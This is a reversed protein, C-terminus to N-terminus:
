PNRYIRITGTTLHDNADGVPIAVRGDVVIPSSWHGGAAPLTGVVKGTAPRYVTVGDGGPSYVYLLGGAIVPSTGGRDATWVRHLKPNSGTSLRYAATQGYLNAVFAWTEGNRRWVAPATFVGGGPASLTQLQGGKCNCARGHGNLNAVSLLRLKGDKGGQLALWRNGSRLLAPATSGLDADGSDLASENTPTWNGVLKTADPSLALVSDGWHTKGNFQGNGTAVLIRHSGPVVVAGSRGWIASGSELCTAPILLGSRDSCLSNFVRVLAGSGRDILAVHGQYPPSDGTYGGTTALVHKGYLNLSTGIKEHSADRTIVAPWSGSVVEAGTSLALKHIRGDPSASYVFGAARDVLPSSHTIQHTGELNGITSPTFTWVRQGTRAGLAFTRGYSTTAIFVDRTKGAVVAAHVYIASSDVTGPVQVDQRKLTKVDAAGIGAVASSNNSRAADFGFRTWDHVAAHAPATLVLVLASLALAIPAYRV